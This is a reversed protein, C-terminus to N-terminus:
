YKTKNRISCGFMDNTTASAPLPYDVFRADLLSCAIGLIGTGTQRLFLRHDYFLISRFCTSICKKVCHCALVQALIALLQTQLIALCRDYISLCTFVNSIKPMHIMISHFHLCIPLYPHPCIAEQATFLM